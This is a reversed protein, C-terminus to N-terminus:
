PIAASIILILSQNNNNNNNDDDDGGGGGVDNMNCGTGYVRRQKLIMTIFSYVILYIVIGIYQLIGHHKFVCFTIHCWLVRNTRRRIGHLIALRKRTFHLQKLIRDVTSGRFHVSRLWSGIRKKVAYFTLYLISFVSIGEQKRSKMNLVLDKVSNYITFKHM